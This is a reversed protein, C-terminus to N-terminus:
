STVIDTFSLGVDTPDLLTVNFNFSELATWQLVSWKSASLSFFVRYRELDCAGTNINYHPLSSVASTM